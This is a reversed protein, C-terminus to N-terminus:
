STKELLEYIKNHIEVKSFPRGQIKALSVTEKLYTSRLMTALQGCNLEPVLVKEFRALIAGLNRPFPNLHRLHVASVDVGDKHCRRVASIIAGYTSGWGVVLLKGSEPGLVELDAIDQAVRNV